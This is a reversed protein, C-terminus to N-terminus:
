TLNNMCELFKAECAHEKNHTIKTNFFFSFVILSFKVLFIHLDYSIFFTLFLHYYFYTQILASFLKYLQIM